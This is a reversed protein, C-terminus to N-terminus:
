IIIKLYKRLTPISGSEGLVELISVIFSDHGYKLISRYIRSNSNKLVSSQFYRSLRIRGDEASGIYVKGTVKNFWMYVITKKNCFHSMKRKFKEASDFIAVPSHPYIPFKFELKKNKAESENNLHKQPNKPEEPLGSFDSNSSNNVGQISRSTDNGLSESTSKQSIYKITWIWVYNQILQLNRQIIIGFYFLIALIDKFINIMLSLDFFLIM